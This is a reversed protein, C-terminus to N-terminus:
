RLESKSEPQLGLHGEEALDLSTKLGWPRATGSPDREDPLRGSSSFAMNRNHLVRQMRLSLRCETSVATADAEATRFAFGLQLWELQVERKM